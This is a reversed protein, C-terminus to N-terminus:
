ESLDTRSGTKTKSFDQLNLANKIVLWTNKNLNEKAYDDTRCSQLRPKDEWTRESQSNTTLWQFILVGVGVEGGKLSSDLVRRLM